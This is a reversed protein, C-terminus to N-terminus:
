TVTQGKFRILKFRVYKQTQSQPKIIPNLHGNLM